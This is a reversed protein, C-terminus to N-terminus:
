RRAVAEVPKEDPSAVLPISVNFVSGVGVVSEASVAGGMLECLRACIALGLGTSEAGRSAGAEGQVFPKFLRGVLEESMGPGSDSVRCRLVPHGPTDDALEAQLTIKGSSTFKFANSLLNNIVQAIRMRDGIVTRDIAPSLLLFSVARAAIAPWRRMPFRLTRSRTSYLLRTRAVLLMEGADIKSFDLIDNVVRRLADGAVNLVPSGSRTRTSGRRARSSNSIASCRM